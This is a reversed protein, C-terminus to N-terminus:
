NLPTARGAGPAGAHGPRRPEYPPLRPRSCSTPGSSPRIRSRATRPSAPRRTSSTASRRTSPRSRTRTPSGPRSRDEGACSSSRITSSATRGAGRGEQPVQGPGVDFPRSLSLDHGRPHVAGQRRPCPRGVEKATEHVALVDMGDVQEGPIGYAAGRECLETGASARAQSTGMGYRNNEIVYIVPLKWLAAMNFSEYVQGQNVAGDGLYAACLGGDERYKHAFAIGTGLPVQGAVIGHGGYFRQDKAFMHM